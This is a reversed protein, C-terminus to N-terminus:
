NVDENGFDIEINKGGNLHLFELYKQFFYRDSRWILEEQFLEHELLLKELYGKENKFNKSRQYM